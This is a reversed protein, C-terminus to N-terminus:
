GRDAGEIDLAAIVRRQARIRTIGDATWGFRKVFDELLDPGDCDEDHDGDAHEPLDCGWGVLIAYLRADDAHQSWDRSSTTM